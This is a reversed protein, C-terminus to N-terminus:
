SGMDITTVGILKYYLWILLGWYFLLKLRRDKAPRGSPLSSHIITSKGLNLGVFNDAHISM